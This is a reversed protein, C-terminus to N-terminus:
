WQLYVNSFVSPAILFPCDLSVSLVFFFLAFVCYMYINCVEIRLCACIVYVLCLWELLCSSTFIFRVDNRHPFRLPCWLVSSTFETFTTPSACKEFHAIRILKLSYRLPLWFHVIWFFSTLHPVCSSYFVVCYTNSVVIRLCVCIVYILCSSEKLCYSTFVFRVDNKDSFRLPCWLM